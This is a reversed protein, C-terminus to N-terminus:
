FTVDAETDLLKKLDEITPLAKKLEESMDKSTKYSEELNKIKGLIVRHHTFEIHLFADIPFDQQNPAQLNWISKIAVNETKSNVFELNELPNEAIM